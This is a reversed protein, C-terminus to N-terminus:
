WTQGLVSPGTVISTDQSDNDQKMRTMRTNAEAILNGYQSQRTIDNRIYEAATVLVLWDPDTVSVDDSDAVLPEPHLYAPVLITGGIEAATAQFPQNFVLSRGIQACYNGHRHDDKLRTADTLTYETYQYTGRQVRVYDGEQKSLTRIEDDLDYSNATSVTGVVYNPEYLSNWDVGEERAWM